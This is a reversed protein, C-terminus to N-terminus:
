LGNWDFTTDPQAGPSNYALTILTHAQLPIMRFDGTFPKGNVYAQWGAVDSLQSPYSLQPFRDGWIDLLNKLTISFGNPAEIHIVGDSSHTHLWYLCSNDPAIGIQAPVTAPKGDIYISVHAHIHFDSHEGSDCSVGDITPYAANAPSKAQVIAFYVLAAVVLVAAAVIGATTIGKRRAARRREEERRQQEERRREQRSRQHTTQKSM